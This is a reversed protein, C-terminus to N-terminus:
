TFIKTLKAAQCLITTQEKAMTFGPAIKRKRTCTHEWQCVRGPVGNDNISFM